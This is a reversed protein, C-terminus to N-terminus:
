SSGSANETIIGRTNKFKRLISLLSGNLWVALFVISVGLYYLEQGGSRIVSNFIILIGLGSVVLAYKTRQDRYNLVIGAIVLACFLAIISISLISYHHYQSEILTNRGCLMITGSYAMLCFPCKPLLTLLIGTAFSFKKKGVSAASERFRLYHKNGCPM